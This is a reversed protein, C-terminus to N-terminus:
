SKNEKQFYYLITAKCSVENCGTQTPHKMGGRRTRGQARHPLSPRRMTAAPNDVRVTFHSPAFLYGKTSLTTPVLTSSDIGSLTGTWRLSEFGPRPASRGVATM